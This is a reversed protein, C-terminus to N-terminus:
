SACAASFQYPLYTDQRDETAAGTTGEQHVGKGEERTRGQRQEGREDRELRGDETRETFARTSSETLPHFISCCALGNM